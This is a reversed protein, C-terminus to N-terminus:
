RNKTNLEICIRNCDPISGAFVIKGSGDREEIVCFGFYDNFSVYYKIM